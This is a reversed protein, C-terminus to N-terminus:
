VRFAGYSGISNVTYAEGEIVNTSTCYIAMENLEKMKHIVGTLCIKTWRRDYSDSACSLM